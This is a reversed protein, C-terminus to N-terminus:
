LSITEVRSGIGAQTKVKRSLEPFGIAGTLNWTAEVIALKKINPNEEDPLQLRLRTTDSMNLNVLNIPDENLVCTFADITNCFNGDSQFLVKGKMDDTSTLDKVVFKVNYHLIAFSILMQITENMQSSKRNIFDTRRVPVNKFVDEVDLVTGSDCHNNFWESIWPSRLYEDDSSFRKILGGKDDYESGYLEPSSKLKTSIRFKGSLSALAHLAEGRFGLSNVKGDLINNMDTMKSTAHRLCVRTLDGTTIGTGNDFVRVGSVGGEILEVRIITSEADLSNEIMEKVAGSLDILVQEACM